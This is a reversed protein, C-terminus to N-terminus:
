KFNQQSIKVVNERIQKKHFLQILFMLLFYFLLSTYRDTTECFTFFNRKVNESVGPRYYEKYNFTNWRTGDGDDRCSRSFLISKCLGHFHINILLVSQSKDIFFPSIICIRIFKYNINICYEWQIINNGFKNSFSRYM